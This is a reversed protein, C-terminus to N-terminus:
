TAAPAEDKMRSWIQVRPPGKDGNLIGHIEIFRDGEVRYLYSFRGDRTTGKSPGATLRYNFYTFIRVHETKTLEFDAAHEHVTNGEADFVTVTESEGAVHKVIRVATGDAAKGEVQWVGQILQLETDPEDALATVPVILGCLLLTTSQLFCRM